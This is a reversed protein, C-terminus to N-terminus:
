LGFPTSLRSQTRAVAHKVLDNRFVLAIRDPDENKFDQKIHISGIHFNVAGKGAIDKIGGSTLRTMAEKFRRAVEPSKESVANILAQLGEDVHVAGTQFAKLTAESQTALSLIYAQASDQGYSIAANLDKSLGEFDGHEVETKMAESAQGVQELHARLDASVREIESPSAGIQTMLDRWKASTEDFNKMANPDGFQEAQSRMQQELIGAQSTGVARGHLFDSANMLVEGAAKAYRLVSEFTELFSKTINSFVTQINETTGWANDWAVEWDGFVRGFMTSIQSWNAVIGNYIGLFANEGFRFVKGIGDGIAEAYEVIADKNGALWHQVNMLAPLLVDIIPHGVAEFFMERYGKLSARVESLTMEPANGGKMAVAQATIAKEALEMQKEPTMKMMAKAVDHANGKLQGTAAILQVIPNRARIMGMEIMAFGQGLGQLGGQTIRGVEAMQETLEKAQETSLHGKAILADFTSTMAEQTQGFQRGTEALEEQLEGAYNAIGAMSHKGQDLLFILGSMAKVQDEQKSAAEVSEETFRSMMEFAAEVGDTVALFSEKLVDAVLVGATVGKAIMGVSAGTKGAAEHAGDLNHKLKETVEESNDDIVLKIRLEADSSGGGPTEAM